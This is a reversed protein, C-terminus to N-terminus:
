VAAHSDGKKSRLAPALCILDSFTEKLCSEWGAALQEADPIQARHLVWDIIPDDFLGKGSFSAEMKRSLELSGKRLLADGWDPLLPTPLRIARLYYEVFRKLSEEPNPLTKVKGSKLFLIRPAHLAVAVALAEPWVKLLGSVQDDHFSLLGQHSVSKIEGYIRAKFGGQWHLEIAPKELHSQNPKPEGTQLLNLSFPREVGWEALQTKWEQINEEIELQLAEGFVGASDEEELIKADPNELSARVSRNKRLYFSDIEEEELYIGAAKQLYFRWPHRALRKLQSIPIEIEKEPFVLEPCRSFDPWSELKRKEGQLSKAALFDTKSYSRVRKESFCRSDFSLSPHVTQLLSSLPRDGSSFSADICSLLQQVLSSPNLPKGEDPTLHCYSVRFFEKASFLSQLFLYRDQDIPDPVPGGRNEKKKLLDLSSSIKMRPFSAEDLGILFVAKAPIAAGEELSSCRVAHLFSSRVQSPCPRTLFRRVPDFSFLSQGIRLDAQRLDKLFHRFADFAAADAEDSLDPALYLEALSELSAAWEALTREKEFERMQEKLGTFLAILEELDDAKVQFQSGTEPRLFVMRDLLREIGAEWSRREPSPLDIGLDKELIKKRHSGDVGWEIRAASIWNRFRELKEEDWNQKRYFAPTEFLSLVEDAEWKGSFLGALRILGQSFSSRSRIDIGFLRYPIPGESDSFVLEILPAYMQIDPALISIEHFAIGKESALRLVGNRLIEVERLRSSGALAVEISDDEFFGRKEGNETQFHLLDFQIAQLLSVPEIVPHLLEIEADFKELQRLTDRGLKGWNTLLRPSDRLSADLAALQASSAGKEKWSRSWQKRERDTCLDEWYHISPSFLYVRLSSASFLSDWYVSPLFDIGFCHVAAPLIPSVALTQVPSRWLGEVFFKQLIAHQWDISKRQPDFLPSGFEGYKFFLATLQEALDELRKEKGELYSLLDPDKAGKLAGLLSFFLELRQPFQRHSSLCEQVSLFRIGMSVGQKKAIELSLWQKVQGNPTLVIQHELPHRAQNELEAALRDALVDLRQSFFLTPIKEM